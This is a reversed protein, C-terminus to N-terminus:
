YEGQADPIARIKARIFTHAPVPQGDRKAPVFQWQQVAATLLKRVPASEDDFQLATVKGQADVDAGISYGQERVDAARAPWACALALLGACIMATRMSSGGRYAPAGAGRTAGAHRLRSPAPLVTLAGDALGAGARLVDADARHQGRAALVTRRHRPRREHPYAAPDAPEVHQREAARRRVQAV